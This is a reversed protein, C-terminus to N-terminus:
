NVCAPLHQGLHQLHFSFSPVVHLCGAVAQISTKVGAVKRTLQSNACGAVQLNYASARGYMTLHLRLLLYAVLMILLFSFCSDAEQRCTKMCTKLINIQKYTNCGLSPWHDVGNATVTKSMSVSAVVLM